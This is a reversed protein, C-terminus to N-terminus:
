NGSFELDVLVAPGTNARELAGTIKGVQNPGFPAVAPAEAPALM